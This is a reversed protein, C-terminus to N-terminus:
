PPSEVCLVLEAVVGALMVTLRRAVAVPIVQLLGTVTFVAEDQVTVTMSLERPVATVGVPENARVWVLVPM